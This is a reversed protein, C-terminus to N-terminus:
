KKALENRDIASPPRELWANKITINAGDEAYLGVEAILRALDTAIDRRPSLSLAVGYNGIGLTSLLGVHYMMLKDSFPPETSDTVESDWTMPSPLDNKNLYTSFIEIHKKSIEKGRIM